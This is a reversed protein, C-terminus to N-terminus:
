EISKENKILLNFIFLHTYNLPLVATHPVTYEQEVWSIRGIAIRLIIYEIHQLKRIM